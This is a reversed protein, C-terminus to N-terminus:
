NEEARESVRAGSRHGSKSVGEFKRRTAEKRWTERREEDAKRNRKKQRRSERDGM